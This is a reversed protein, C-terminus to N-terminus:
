GKWEKKEELKLIMCAGMVAMRPNYPEGRLVSRFQDVAEEALATAKEKSLEPMENVCRSVVGAIIEPHMFYGHKERPYEALNAPLYTGFRAAPDTKQAEQFKELCVDSLRHLQKNQLLWKKRGRIVKYQNEDKERRMSERNIVRGVSKFLNLGSFRPM